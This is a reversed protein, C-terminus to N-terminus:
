SAGVATLVERSGDWIMRLAVYLIIAFGAYAIWRHQHLLKAILTAAVGMLAVSLALGFILVVQHDRAAGAVALVNDLSMSIDAVVIQTVADRFSKEPPADPM